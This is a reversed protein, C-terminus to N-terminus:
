LVRWCKGTHLVMGKCEEIHWTHGKGCTFYVSCLAKFKQVHINPGGIFSWGDRSCMKQESHHIIKTLSSPCKEEVVFM